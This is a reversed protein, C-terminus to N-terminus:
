LSPYLPSSASSQLLYHFLLYSLLPLFFLTLYSRFPLFSHLPLFFISLFLLFLLLLFFSSVPHLLFFFSHVGRASGDPHIASQPTLYPVTSAGHPRVKNAELPSDLRWLSRCNRALLPIVRKPILSHSPTLPLFLPAVGGDGKKRMAIRVVQRSIREQRKM